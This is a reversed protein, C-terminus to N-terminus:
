ATAKAERPMPTSPLAIEVTTGGRAGRRVDLTAATGYLQELRSRTNRLGTGADRGIDFDPRLGAGDDTVWVRLRHRELSAGISVRCRETQRAAGHRLANEVVPQLLLTPVAVNLCDDHVHYDVELRDAFRTQQLNVYRRVWDIETALTVLQDRPRDLTTRMFESLEVLMDLARSSDRLRILAAIANLEILQEGFRRVDRKGGACRSRVALHARCRKFRRRGACFSARAGCQREFSEVRDQQGLTALLQALRLNHHGPSAVPIPKHALGIAGAKRRVRVRKRNLILGTQDNRARLDVRLLEGNVVPPNVCKGRAIADALEHALGLREQFPL